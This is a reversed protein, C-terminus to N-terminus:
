DGGGMQGQTLLPFLILLSSVSVHSPFSLASVKAQELAAQERERLDNSAINMARILARRKGSETTESELATKFTRSYDEQVEDTFYEYWPVKPVLATSTKARKTERDEDDDCLAVDNSSQIVLTTAAAAGALLMINSHEGEVSTTTTSATALAKAM